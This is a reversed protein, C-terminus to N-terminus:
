AAAPLEDPQALPDDVPEDLAARLESWRERAWVSAGLGFAALADDLPMGLTFRLSELDRCVGHAEILFARWARLDRLESVSVSHNNGAM